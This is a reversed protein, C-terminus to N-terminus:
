RTKLCRRSWSKLQACIYSFCGVILFIIVENCFPLALWAIPLEIVFKIDRGDSSQIDKVIENVSISWMVLAILAVLSLGLMGRSTSNKFRYQAVHLHQFVYVMNPILLLMAMLAMTGLGFVVKSTLPGTNLGFQQVLVPRHHSLIELWHLNAAILHHFSVDPLFLLTILLFITNPTIFTIYALGLFDGLLDWIYPTKNKGAHYYRWSMGLTLIVIFAILYEFGYGVAMAFSLMLFHGEAILWLKKVVKWREAVEM